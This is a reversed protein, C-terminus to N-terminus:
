LLKEKMIKGMVVVDANCKKLFNFNLLKIILIEVSLLM